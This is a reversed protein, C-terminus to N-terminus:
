GGSFLRLYPLLSVEDVTRKNLHGQSRRRNVLHGATDFGILESSLSSTRGSQVEHLHRFLNLRARGRGDDMEGDTLVGLLTSKGVDVSGLMAVRLDPVGQNISLKWKAHLEIAKRQPSILSGSASSKQRFDASDSVDSITCERLIRICVGLRQSMKCLTLLSASMEKATLGTVAGNDDVGLRYIAQGGGENLRWKYEINGDEPEPPLNLPLSSTGTFSNSQLFANSIRTSFSPESKNRGISVDDSLQHVPAARSRNHQATHKTYGCNQIDETSCLDDSFFFALEDM